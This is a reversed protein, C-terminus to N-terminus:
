STWCKLQGYHSEQIADSVLHKAPKGIRNHHSDQIAGSVLHKAIDEMRDHLDM